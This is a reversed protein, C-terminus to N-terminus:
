KMDNLLKKFEKVDTNQMIKLDEYPATLRRYLEMKVCDLVGVLNNMSTYSLGGTEELIHGIITSFIFNLNGPVLKGGQLSDIALSKMATLAMKERDKEQIYPM